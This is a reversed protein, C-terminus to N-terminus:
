DASWEDLLARADRLDPTEFGQTFEQYVETLVQSAEDRRGQGHRLRGLSMAARLEWSRAGQRRAVVLSREFSPEGGLGLGQLVEGKIRHLEAEQCRSNSRDAIALADDVERLADELRGAKWQIEALFGHYEALSKRSGTPLYASLAEQVLSLAEELRGEVMNGTGRSMMGLAKWFPFGQEASIALCEDGFKIGDDGRRVLYSVWGAHHLVYALSFPHDVGRTYEVAENIGQWADDPRGMYWAALARYCRYTAGTDQSINLANHRCLDPRELEECHDCADLVAQFEGRYFRTIAISFWAELTQGRDERSEALELLQCTLDIATDMEDRLLRLAWMGWIIRFLTATDGIREALDRARAHVSELDPSAYGRSAVLSVSLDAQFGLEIADREPSEPLLLVQELGRHFHGVAEAHSSRAQSRRGAERWHGIAESALGASSYHHALLEPQSKVAEAFELELVRAIREHVQQRKGKLMSQYAADQILAHKFLYTSRSGRGKEFLIEAEVLRGLQHRLTAEDQESVAKILELSFERGITAGLQAVDKVGPMRDLRSLLLDQLTAPIADIPFSGTMSLEGEAGRLAGSEVLMKAFEEIFLPVGDTRAALQEVVAEPVDKMGVKRRVLDAIQRRTLRNIALQSRNARVPWPAVFEPRATLVTMIRDDHRQDILLGLFELTSPDVWHMDEVIFLVPRRSAQETLWDILAEFTKEKQRQPSLTLSPFRGDSPISLLSAFLGLPEPDDMGLVKLHEELKDLRSSATDSARLRLIRELCETAPYLGSDQYHPSCRWEITSAARGAENDAVFEKMVLVLRSKGIGAEGILQVLQAVSEKAHEWRDKLLGVEQDRGTLPSLGASRAADIRSVAEGRGVVKHLEIPKPLGRISRTGLPEYRFFGLVLRRTAETIALWGPEIIYEMRTSVSPAEGIMSLGEGTELDGVIAPGTHIAAWPRLGVGRTLGLRENREEIQEFIALAADVARRPADEHAVPFGFCAQLGQPTSVAVTGGLRVVVERCCQRFDTLLEHQDEPDLTSLSSEVDALECGCNLVTVQRRETEHLPREVSPADGANLRSAASRSGDCHECEAVGTPIMRGCNSCRRAPAYPKARTVVPGGISGSDGLSVAISSSGIRIARRLEEALDGATTYRDTIKKAMAKLCIRELERSISRVVQRPPQPEDERVQRLLETVNESRFPRRGALLLYLVVGLSYIDTRGDIRHGEGRAQEPSMYAPTGVVITSPGTQETETLALGFDLLIPRLSDDLMINAPKVDRHITGSNHAHDLSDAVNAVIEAAQEQTAKRVKLWDRLSTGPVFDSVIFCIGCQVGVDYVTVIGPHKLRALRRAELLFVDVEAAPMSKLPVKVAVERQLEADYGVYVRGFGGQGLVRRVQYRGFAIPTGSPSMAALAVPEPPTPIPVLPIPETQAGTAQAFTMTQSNGDDDGAGITLELADLDSGARETPVDGAEGSTREHGASSGPVVLRNGPRPPESGQDPM